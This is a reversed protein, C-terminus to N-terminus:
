GVQINAILHPKTGDITTVAADWRDGASRWWAGVETPLLIPKTFSVEVRYRDPLKAEIAALLRAHTWMGHILPRAFGFARAALLHTHIPNPDGSVRRYQRGLDAPLRWHAIPTIPTFAAREVAVPEGDVRAGPALYTSVGDWVLEEGVRVEGVLDLLAGRQHPRLNTVRVSIDLTETARVPRHLQMQNSVHVVGALRITSEPDSLLLVHLPFTLVHLWTSPVADRVTFGCVQDYAALRELDQSVPNLRLTHGPIRAPGRGFSPLLGKAFLPGMAGVTALERVEM